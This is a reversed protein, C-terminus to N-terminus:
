PYPSQFLSICDFANIVFHSIAKTPPMAKTPTSKFVYTFTEGTEESM